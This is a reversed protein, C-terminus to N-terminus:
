QLTETLPPPVFSIYSSISYLSSVKILEQLFLQVMATVQPARSSQLVLNEGKLELQVKDGGRLEVSLLEAFSQEHLGSNINQALFM